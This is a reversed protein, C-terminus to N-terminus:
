THDAPSAPRAVPPRPPQLLHWERHPVVRPWIEAVAAPRYLGDDGCTFAAPAGNLHLYRRSDIHKFAHVSTGDALAVEFMWMFQEVIAPGLMQQLPRWTPQLDNIVAGTQPTFPRM